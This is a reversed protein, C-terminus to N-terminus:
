NRGHSKEMKERHTELNHIYRTKKPPVGRMEGIKKNLAPRDAGRSQEGEIRLNVWLIQV